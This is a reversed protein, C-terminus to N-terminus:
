YRLEWIKNYFYMYILRWGKIILFYYFKIKVLFFVLDSEICWVFICVRFIFFVNVSLIKLVVENKRSRLLLKYDFKRNFM